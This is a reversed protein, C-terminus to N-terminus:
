YYKIHYEKTRAENIDRIIIPYGDADFEYSYCTNSNNDKRYKPLHESYTGQLMIINSNDSNDLTTSLVNLIDINMKNEVDFYYQVDIKSPYKLSYKCVIDNNVWNYEYENSSSLSGDSHYHVVEMSKLLGNEYNYFFTEPALESYTFEVKEVYGENDLSYKEKSYLEMNVESDEYYSSIIITNSEYEVIHETKEYYDAESYIEIMKVVRCRTDYEYTWSETYGDGPSSIEKVLKQGSNGHSGNEKECSAFCMVMLPLSLLLIKKM